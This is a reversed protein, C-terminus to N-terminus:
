NLQVNGRHRGVHWATEALLVKCLLLLRWQCNSGSEESCQQQVQVSLVMIMSVLVVCWSNFWVTLLRPSALAKLQQLEEASLGEARHRQILQDYRKYLQWNHWEKDAHYHWPAMAELQKKAAQLVM